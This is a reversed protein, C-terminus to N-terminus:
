QRLFLESPKFSQNPHGNRCRGRHGSAENLKFLVQSISQQYSGKDLSQNCFPAAGDDLKM